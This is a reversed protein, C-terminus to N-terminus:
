WKKLWKYIRYIAYLLKKFAFEQPPQYSIQAGGFKKKFQTVGKWSHNKAQSPAIGFFDYHKYHKAKAKKMAHWQLLYPAMVNRYENGSAGYYYTATEKNFTIIIGAITKNNYKALYLAASNAPILTQLMTQYYDKNHASFEDRATTQRLLEYFDDLDSNFTNKDRPNAEYIEVHKKTALRINYRGKPKMQKLIAEESETLDLILTHEPQFGTHAAHFNKFIPPHSQKKIPPDIRLFIANQEKALPKISSLLLDMQEQSKEKTGYNILPGRAAYLWCYGKPLSYHILLTGGIIKSNEQLVIIWYKGRSPIKQQFHAWSTTQHITSLPHQAIFEDWLNEESKDLIRAKM